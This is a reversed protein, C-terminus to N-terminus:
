GKGVCEVEPPHNVNSGRQHQNQERVRRALLLLEAFEVELGATQRRDQPRHRPHRPRSLYAAKRLMQNAREFQV